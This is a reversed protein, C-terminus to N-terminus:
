AMCLSFSPFFMRNQISQMAVLLTPFPAYEHQHVDEVCRDDM